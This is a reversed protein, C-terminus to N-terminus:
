ELGEEIDRVAEVVSDGYEQPFFIRFRPGQRSVVAPVDVVKGAAPLEDLDLDTLRRMVTEGEVEIGAFAGTLDVVLGDLRESLVACREPECIVLARTPTIRLIEADVDQLDVPGRVELKGLLSLDRVGAAGALAEAVSLFDLGSM